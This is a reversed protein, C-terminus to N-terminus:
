SDCEILAAALLPIMIEHHGTISYGKGGAGAHPREVVNARPRYHQIFDLNATTFEKLPHGLNRATSVAKLFVEPLVVACEFSGYAIGRCWYDEAPIQEAPKRDGSIVLTRGTVAVHIDGPDVGPVDCRVVLNGDRVYADYAPTWTTGRSGDQEFFRRLVSDLRREMQEMWDFPARQAVTFM